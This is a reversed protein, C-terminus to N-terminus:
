RNIETSLRADGEIELVVNKADREEERVEERETKGDRQGGRWGKIEGM